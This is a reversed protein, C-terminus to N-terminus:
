MGYIHLHIKKGVVVRHTLFGRKAAEIEAKRFAYFQFLKCAGAGLADAMPNYGKHYVLDDAAVRFGTATKVLGLDFNSGQFSISHTCKGAEAREDTTMEALAQKAEPSNPHVTGWWRYTQANENFTFGLETCTAKLAELDRIETMIRVIHSM